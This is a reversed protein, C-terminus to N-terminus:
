RREAQLDGESLSVYKEAGGNGFDFEIHPMSKISVDRKIVRLGEILILKAVMADVPDDNDGRGAIKSVKEYRIM